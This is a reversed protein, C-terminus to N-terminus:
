VAAVSAVTTLREDVAFLRGISAPWDAPTEPRWAKIGLHRCTPSVALNDTVITFEGHGIPEGGPSIMQVLCAPVPEKFDPVLDAGADISLAAAVDGAGCAVM